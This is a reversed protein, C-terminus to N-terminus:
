LKGVSCTTGKDGHCGKLYSFITMIDMQTEMLSRPKLEKLKDGYHQTGM